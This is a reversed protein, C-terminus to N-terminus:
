LEICNSVILFKRLEERDVPICNKSLWNSFIIPDPLKMGNENTWQLKADVILRDHFLRLAEHAWLHVLGEASLKSRGSPKM